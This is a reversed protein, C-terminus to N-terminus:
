TKNSNPFLPKLMCNCPETLFNLKLGVARVSGYVVESIHLDNLLCCLYLKGGAWGKAVGPKKDCLDVKVGCFALLVSKVALKM